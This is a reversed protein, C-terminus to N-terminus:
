LRKRARHRPAKLGIKGAIAVAGGHKSLARAIDFRGLKELQPRSPMVGPDLGNESIFLFVERRMNTIDSWYGRPKRHNKIWGLRKAVVDFGGADVVEQELSYADLSRLEARRPMFGDSGFGLDQMQSRISHLPDAVRSKEQIGVDANSDFVSKSPIIRGKYYEAERLFTSSSSTGPYRMEAEFVKETYERFSHLLSFIEEFVAREPLPSGGESDSVSNSSQWFTKSTHRRLSRGEIAFKVMTARESVFAESKNMGGEYDMVPTFSDGSKCNGSNDRDHQRCGRFVKDDDFRNECPIVLWKGQLVNGSPGTNLTRFQVEGKEDNKTFDCTVDEELCHYLQCKLYVQRMRVRATRNRPNLPQTVREVFALNPVFEPMDDFNTLVRYVLKPPAEIFVAGIARRHFIDKTDFRRLHVECAGPRSLCANDDPLWRQEADMSSFHPDVSELRQYVHGNSTQGRRGSGELLHQAPEFVLSQSIDQAFFKTNDTVRSSPAPIPIENLGLYELPGGLNRVESRKGERQITEGLPSELPPFFRPARIFIQDLEIARRMVERMIQPLQARIWRRLSSVVAPFRSPIVALELSADCVYLADKVERVVWKRCTQLSRLGNCPFM